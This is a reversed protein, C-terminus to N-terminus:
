RGARGAASLARCARCASPSSSAARPTPSSAVFLRRRLRYRRLARRRPPHVARRDGPDRGPHEDERARHPHTSRRDDASSDSSALCLFAALSAATPYLGNGLIVPWWGLLTILPSSRGHHRGVRHPDPVGHRDLAARPRAEPRRIRRHRQHRRRRHRPRRVAAPGAPEDLLGYQAYAGSGFHEIIMRSTFIGLVGSLGMVFIKRHRDPQRRGTGGRGRAM